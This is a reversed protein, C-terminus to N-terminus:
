QEAAVINVDTITATGGTIAVLGVDIWEAIGPTLGSVYCTTSFPVKGATTSAVYQPMTGCTSGTLAAANAPATGTGVRIQIKAGDAIATANFITGNVTIQANGTINPTITGALGMMVGTTSATGTPNSPSSTSRAYNNTSPASSALGLVNQLNYLYVGSTGDGLYSGTTGSYLAIQYSPAAFAAGLTYTLFFFYWGNGVNMAAFDIISASGVKNSQIIIGTTPNFIVQVYNGFAGTDAPVISLNRTGSKTKVYGSLTYTSNALAPASNQQIYHNSTAAAEVLSAALPTTGIPNAVAAPTLTSSSPAWVSTLGAGGPLINVSPTVAVYPSIASRTADDYYVGGLMSTPLEMFAAGGNFGCSTCKYVFDTYTTEAGNEESWENGAMQLNYISNAFEIHYNTGTIGAKWFPFESVNGTLAIGGQGGDIANIRINQAGNRDFINSSIQIAGAGGEIDLGISSVGGTALVNFNDEIRNGMIQSTTLYWFKMGGSNNDAVNVGDGFYSDSMFGANTVPAELGLNDSGIYLGGKVRLGEIHNHTGNSGNSAAYIGDWCRMAYDDKLTVYFSNSVDYCNVGASSGRSSSALGVVAVGEILSYDGPTIFAQGSSFGSTGTCQIRTSPLTGLSYWWDNGQQAKIFGYAPITLPTCVNYQGPLMVVPRTAATAFAAVLAATDTALVGTPAVHNWDSCVLNRIIAPTISGAAQGDRLANLNAADTEATCGTQASAYGCTLLLLCFAALLRRM